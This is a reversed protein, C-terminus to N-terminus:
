PGTRTLTFTAVSSALDQEQGPCKALQNFRETGTVTIYRGGASATARYTTVVHFPYSGVTLKNTYFDRCEITGDAVDTWGGPGTRNVTRRSDNLRTTCKTPSSCTTRIKVTTTTSRGIIFAGTGTGATVKYVGRYTGNFGAVSPLAPPTRTSPGGRPASSTAVRTVSGTAASRGAVSQPGGIPSTAAAPDVPKATPVAASGATGSAPLRQPSSSTPLVMSTAVAGDAAAPATTDNSPRTLLFVGGAVAIVAVATGAAALAGFTRHGFAVPAAAAPQPVNRDVHTRSRRQQQRDRHRQKDRHDLRITTGTLVDRELPVVSQPDPRSTSIELGDDRHSM